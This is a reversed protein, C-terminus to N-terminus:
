APIFAEITLTWSDVNATGLRIYFNGKGKYIYTVESKSPGIVGVLAEVPMVTEGEPYVYFYFIALSGGKFEWKIRWENSPIYFLETTRSTIGTFTTILNWEGKKLPPVLKKLEEIEAKLSSITADKENIQSQLAGIQKQLDSVQKEM